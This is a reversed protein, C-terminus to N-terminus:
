LVPSIRCVMEEMFARPGYQAYYNQYSVNKDGAIAHVLFYVEATEKEVMARQGLIPIELSWNKSAIIEKLKPEEASDTPLILQNQGFNAKLTILVAMTASIPQRGFGSRKLVRSLRDSKINFFSFLM